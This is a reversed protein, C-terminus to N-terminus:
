DALFCILLLLLVVTFYKTLIEMMTEIREAPIEYLLVLDAIHQVAQAAVQENKSNLCEHFCNTALDADSFKHYALIQILYMHEKEEINSIGNVLIKVTDPKFSQLTRIGYTRISKPNLLCKFIQSLTM